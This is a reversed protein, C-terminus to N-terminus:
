EDPEEDRRRGWRLWHDARAEVAIFAGILVGALLLLIYRIVPDTASDIKLVALLVLVLAAFLATAGFRTM